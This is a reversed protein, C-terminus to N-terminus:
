GYQVGLWLIESQNIETPLTNSIGINRWYDGQSLGYRIQSSNQFVDPIQVKKLFQDVKLKNSM